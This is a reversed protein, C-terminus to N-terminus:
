ENFTETENFIRFEIRRTTIKNRQMRRLEEVNKNNEKKHPPFSLLSFNDKKIKKDLNDFAELYREISIKRM